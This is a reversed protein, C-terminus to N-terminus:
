CYRLSLISKTIDSGKTLKLKSIETLTYARNTLPYLSFDVWILRKAKFFFM